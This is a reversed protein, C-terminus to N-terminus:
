ITLCSCYMYYYSTKVQLTVRRCRLAPLCEQDAFTTTYSITHGVCFMVSCYGRVALFLLHTILKSLVMEDPHSSENLANKAILPTAGEKQLLLCCKSLQFTGGMHYIFKLLLKDRREM